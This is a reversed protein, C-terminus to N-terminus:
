INDAILDGSKNESIITYNNLLYNEIKSYFKDSLKFSKYNNNKDINSYIKLIIM